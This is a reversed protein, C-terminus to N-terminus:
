DTYSKKSYPLFFVPWGWFFLRISSSAKMLEKYNSKSDKGRERFENEKKHTERSINELTKKQHGYEKRVEKGSQRIAEKIVKGAEITGGPKIKKTVDAVAKADNKVVNSMHKARDKAKSDLEKVDLEIKRRSEPKYKPM